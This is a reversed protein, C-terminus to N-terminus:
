LGDYRLGAKPAYKSMLRYGRLIRITKGIHLMLSTTNNRVSREINIITKGVQPGEKETGKLLCLSTLGDRGFELLGDMTGIIGDRYACATNLWWSGIDFGVAGLNNAYPSRPLNTTWHLSRMTPDIEM